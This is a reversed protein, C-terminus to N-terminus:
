GSISVSFLGVYTKCLQSIATSSLAEDDSSGPQYRAPFTYSM